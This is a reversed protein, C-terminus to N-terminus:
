NKWFRTSNRKTTLTFKLFRNNKLSLFPVGGARYTEDVLAAALPEADDFMEILVNESPKLSVSYHILNKALALTRPDM